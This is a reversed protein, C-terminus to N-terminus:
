ERCLLLQTTLQLGGAAKRRPLRGREENVLGVAIYISNM